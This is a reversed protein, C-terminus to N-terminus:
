RAAIMAMAPLVIAVIILILWDLRNFTGLEEDGLNQIKDIRQELDLALDKVHEQELM